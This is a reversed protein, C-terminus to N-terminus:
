VGNKRKEYSAPRGRTVRAAFQSIWDPSGFATGKAVNGRFAALETETQPLNVLEVWDPPLAVPGADFRLVQNQEPHLRHWLSSWRWDEARVVLNARLANREIYRWVWLLHSGHEVPISKFRSQYVAGCGVIGRHRNWRSAHTTTLWQVFRSLDGNVKPWLLFHWHTPMSSYAIIRVQVRERAECLLREFALYDEACDFLRGRKASRNLVHYVYGAGTFRPKRAMTRSSDPISPPL